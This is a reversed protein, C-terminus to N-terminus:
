GVHYTHMFNRTPKINSSIISYLNSTNTFIQPIVLSASASTATAMPASAM